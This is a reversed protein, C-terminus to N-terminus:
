FKLDHSVQAVIDSFQHTTRIEDNRPFALPVDVTSAIKGPSPTMVAIRTSLYVAEFVNHTIFLVTMKQKEWIRLLETQLSQRTIEDLAGFPEDMLLLKPKAVLARAISVRMRMGGSLQRPLSKTYDELGVLELARLAEQKKEQKSMKQFELPLMVNDLVSRWPLLTADQFVFGVDTRKQGTDNMDSGLIEINGKTNDILGSIMKFITSKGCGSPGVFSIFEGASIDININNVAVNGNPFVKGVDTM